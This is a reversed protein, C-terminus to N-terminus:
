VLVVAFREFQERMQRIMKPSLIRALVRRTVSHDPPDVELIVSPKQWTAQRRINTMGVGAASSFRGWDTLAERVEADRGVFWAEWKPVWVAPAAERIAAHVGFPDALVAPDFPDVDLVTAGAM